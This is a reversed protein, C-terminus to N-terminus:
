INEEMKIIKKVINRYKREEIGIEFIKKQETSSLNKFREPFSSILIVNIYNQLTNFQQIWKKLLSKEYGPSFKDPTTQFSRASSHVYKSLAIYMKPVNRREKFLKKDNSCKKDFEIIGPLNEFYLYGEGWVDKTKLGSRYWQNGELWWKFEVSHTSFFVLRLITEIQSRLCMYAYKYLAECAFHISMYADVFIEPILKTAPESDRFAKSWIDFLKVKELSNEIEDSHEKLTSNWNKVSLNKWTMYMSKTLEPLKGSEVNVV